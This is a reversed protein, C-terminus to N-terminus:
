PTSEGDELELMEIIEPNVTLKWPIAKKDVVGLSYKGKYKYEKVLTEARSGKTARKIGLLSNCHRNIKDGELEYDEDYKENEILDVMALLLVDVHEDVIEQYKDGLYLDFPNQTRTSGYHLIYNGITRITDSEPDEIEKYFTQIEEHTWIDTLKKNTIDMVSFRRESNELYLDAASNHFLMFNTYVRETSKVAAGKAEITQYENFASKLFNYKEKNVRHEDILILIKERFIDNFEKVGFKSTAESCYPHGVLTKCIAYFVNKGVGKDGNFVLATENRSTLLRYIWNLTFEIQKDDGDFLHKMFQLFKTPMLDKQITDKSIRWEPLHYKNLYQNGNEAFYNEHRTPNFICHAVNMPNDEIHSREKRSISSLFSAASIDIMLRNTRTDIVYRRATSADVVIALYNKNELIFDIELNIESTRFPSLLQHYLKEAEQKYAEPNTLKLTILPHIQPDDIIHPLAKTFKIATYPVGDYRLKGNDEELLSKDFLEVYNM